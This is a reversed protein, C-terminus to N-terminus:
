GHAFAGAHEAHEIDDGGEADSLTEELIARVEYAAASILPQDLPLGEDDAELHALAEAVDDTTAGTEVIRELTLEDMAEGLM